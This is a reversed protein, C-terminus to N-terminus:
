VLIQMAERNIEDEEIEMDVEETDVVAEGVMDETTTNDIGEITIEEEAGVGGIMTTTTAVVATTMIDGIKEIIMGEEEIETVVETMITVKAEEITMKIIAAVGIAGMVVGTDM